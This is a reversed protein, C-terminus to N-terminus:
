FPIDDDSFDKPAGASDDSFDGSGGNSRSDGHFDNESPPPAGGGGDRRGGGTFFVEDAHIETMYHTQNHDDEWKRTRLKGVIMLGTGKKVHRSLGEARNGWVVVNHWEAFDEWKGEANKKSENTAIRMTLVSQGSDLKKFKPDSGVNGLLLARNLGNAM